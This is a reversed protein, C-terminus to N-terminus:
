VQGSAKGPYLSIGLLVGIVGELAFDVWFLPPNGLKPLYILEPIMIALVFGLALLGVPRRLWAKFASWLFFVGIVFAMAAISHMEFPDGYHETVRSFSDLSIMAWLGTIVYYLGQFSLVLKLM